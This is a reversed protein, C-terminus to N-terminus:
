TLILDKGQDYYAQVVLRSKKFVKDTGLHKIEDVFRSNFIRVGQLINDKNVVEFVGKELLGNLEKQWSDTYLPLTGEPTNDQLYVSIDAINQWFRALLRRTREVHREARIKAVEEIAKWVAIVRQTISLVPPDLESIWPYVGFVLLTPVLGDLGATDNVAKVAMQLNM